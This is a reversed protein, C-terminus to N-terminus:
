PVSRPPGTSQPEYCPPPLSPACLVMPFVCSFPIPSNHTIPFSHTTVFWLFLPTIPCYPCHVERCLQCLRAPECDCRALSSPANNLARQICAHTAYCCLAAAPCRCPLAVPCRCPLSLAADDLFRCPGRVQTRRCTGPGRATHLRLICVCQLAATARGARGGDVHGPAPRSRDHVPRRGHQGVSRAQAADFLM